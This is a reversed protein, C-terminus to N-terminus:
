ENYGVETKQRQREIYEQEEEPSLWGGGLAKYLLIYSNLLNLRNSLLDLQAAFSQRQMELVELYTTSGEDYRVSSLEESQMATETRSEQAILEERYTEISILADEVEKFAQLTTQEYNILAAQANAVSMEVRRKNKGFQFIPGFLSSGISWSLGYASLSVLDPSAIGLTSTLSLSPWRLAESIGIQANQAKYQAEALKIDPRRELIESPIGVPIDLNYKQKYFPIGKEIKRPMYGLLISLANENLAIIRKYTPVATAALERQIKAQNLDILAILGGDYRGKMLYLGSDRSALTNTSIQLQDFSALITFYATAVASILSLQVTRKGYETALFNAQAAENMRRFKGWFGIEWNLEPIAYFESSVNDNFGSLSAGAGFSISPKQDAKTFGINARAAEIRAAAALVDKNENLATKILTDLVPDDFLEWWRLNILSDGAPEFRYNEPGTYDKKQFNPGLMCGQVLYAILLVSIIKTKNM